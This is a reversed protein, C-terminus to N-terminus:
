SVEITIGRAQAPRSKRLKVELINDRYTAKVDDTVIRCPLAISRSFSHRQKVISAFDSDQEVSERRSKVELRLANETVSLQIDDMRVEPLEAKLILYEDTESLTTTFRGAGQLLTRPVGFGHRFRRFLLDLDKRLKNLEEKKWITLETM